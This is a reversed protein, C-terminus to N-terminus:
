SGLILVFSLFSFKKDDFIVRKNGAAHWCKAYLIFCIIKPTHAHDPNPSKGFELSSKGVCNEFIGSSHLQRYVSM